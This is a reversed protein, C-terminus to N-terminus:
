DLLRFFRNPDTFNNTWPSLFAGSSINTWTNTSITQSLNTYPGTVNVASQLRHGGTWNLVTQGNMSSVLLTPAVPPTPLSAGVPLLLMRLSIPEDLNVVPNNVGSTTLRLWRSVNTGNWQFRVHFSKTGSDAAQNSVEGVNPSTLISGGTTGSFSPQRFGYDTTKAPSEEFTHLVTAGNQINDIYIDFPGTDSPSDIAFSLSELIGWQGPLTNVNTLSPNWQVSPGSQSSNPTVTVNTTWGTNADNLSNATVDQGENYGAFNLDRLIRYGQAGPVADWTWDVSFVDNSTLNFFESGTASYVTAGNPLSKFAYVKISVIDNAAYGTANAVNGTANASDGVSANTGRWFTVTQWENSPYIVPANNPAGSASTATTAGLFHLNGSGTDGPVGIPGATSTERITLALRLSPNAGGGVTLGTAPICSEQTLVKQTAAVIAGKVLGSVTVANDGATVGTTKSGIQVMSSGPGTNQYVFLNTANAAVGSVIVQNVNTSIPGSVLVGSTALCPTALVNSVSGNDSRALFDIYFVNTVLSGAPFTSNRFIISDLTHNGNTLTASGAIINAVPGWSDPGGSFDDLDWEYLHWEGDAIIAKPISGNNTVSQPQGSGGGELWIQVTWNTDVLADATKIYIGVWGDVGDTTAIPTNNAVSGGGSLHRLRTNNTCVLTIRQQGAGEVPSNTTVRTAGSGTTLGITSGSGGIVTSTFHGSNVNFDDIIQTAAHVYSPAIAALVAACVLARTPSLKRM